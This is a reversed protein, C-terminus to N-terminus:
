EDESVESTETLYVDFLWVDITGDPQIELEIAGSGWALQIGGSPMPFIAPDEKLTRIIRRANSSADPHVPLGQKGDLWGVPLNELETIREDRDSM